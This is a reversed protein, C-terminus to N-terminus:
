PGLDGRASALDRLVRAAPRGRLGGYRSAPDLLTLHNTSGPWDVYWSLVGWYHQEGARRLFSALAAAQLADDVRESRQGAEGVLVRAHRGLDAYAPLAGADDYEHFDLHSFGLGSFRGARVNDPGHWGSGASVVARPAAARVRRAGDALFDRMTSWDVGSEWNGTPGAVAGEPENMLDFGWV